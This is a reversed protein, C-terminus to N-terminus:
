ISSTRPRISTPLGTSAAPRAFDAYSQYRFTDGGSGGAITDAGGGGTLTDRGGNGNITDGYATGVIVDDRNSGNFTKGVPPKAKAM